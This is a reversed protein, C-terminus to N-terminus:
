SAYQPEKYCPKHESGTESCLNQKGAIIILNQRRDIQRNDYNDLHRNDSPEVLQLGRHRGADRDM